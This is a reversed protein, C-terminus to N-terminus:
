ANKGERMMQTVANAIATWDWEIVRDRNLGPPLPTDRSAGAVYVGFYPVRRRQAMAIEKVVGVARHTTPGVLVIMMHCRGIKEDIEAEWTSQPLAEKSSWDQASFPTPSQPRIQGSFLNRERENNDFDFSIFARPEGM